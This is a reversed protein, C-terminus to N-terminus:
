IRTWLVHMWYLSVRKKLGRKVCSSWRRFCRRGLDEGCSYQCNEPCAQVEKSYYCAQCKTVHCTVTCGPATPGPRPAPYLYVCCHSNILMYGGAALPLVVGGWSILSTVTLWMMLAWITPKSSGTYRTSGWSAAPAHALCSYISLRRHLGVKRGAVTSQLLSYYAMSPFHTGLCHM